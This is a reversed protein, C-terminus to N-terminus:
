FGSLSVEPGLPPYQAMGPFESELDMPRMELMVKVQVKLTQIVTHGMFV